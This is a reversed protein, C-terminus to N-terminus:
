WHLTLAGHFHVTQHFLSRFTTTAHLLTGIKQRSENPLIPVLNGLIELPIQHYVHIGSNQGSVVLSSDKEKAAEFKMRRQEPAGENIAVLVGPTRIEVPPCSTSAVHIFNDSPFAENPQAQPFSSSFLLLPLSLFPCCPYSFSLPSPHKSIALHHTKTPHPILLFFLPFFFSCSFLFYFILNCWTDLESQGFQIEFDSIPLPARRINEFRKFIM